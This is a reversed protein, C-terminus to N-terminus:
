NLKEPGKGSTDYIIGRLSSSLENTLFDSVDKKFKEPYIVHVNPGADLTFCVPIKTIERFRIINEIAHITGPKMLLYYNASTMMMAHLALAESEAIQIFEEYDGNYLTKIIRKTHEKAQLFRNEAYPHNNMLSHGVSSSVKKPEDDVIRIADMMQRFNEHVRPVETAYLDSSGPIDPHEGWSAYGGFMSRCASGSGLRALESAKTYFLEQESPPNLNGQADLLALAIAGFASASSAIGTSHPFSNHSNLRIGVDKLFPFYHINTELYKLIRKQFSENREGEFFYDLEIGKQSKEFSELKVETVAESLTMSVSPNCPLQNGRKGWYKVIAINSPCRWEIKQNIQGAM